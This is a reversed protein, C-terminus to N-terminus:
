EEHLTYQELQSRNSAWIVLYKDQERSGMAWAYTGSEVQGIEKCEKDSIKFAIVNNAERNGILLTGRGTVFM